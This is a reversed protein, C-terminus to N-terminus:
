HFKRAKSTKEFSSMLKNLASIKIFIIQSMEAAAIIEIAIFLNQMMWGTHFWAYIEIVHKYNESFVSDYIQVLLLFVMGSAFTGQEICKWM